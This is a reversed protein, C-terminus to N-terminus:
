RNAGAVTSFQDLLAAVNKELVKEMDGGFAGVAMDSDSVARFKDEGTLSDTVTLVSDVGGKGAGFGVWYRLARSGYTMKIDLNLILAKVNSAPPQSILQYHSENLYDELEGRAFVEWEKMDTQLKENDEAAEEESYVKVESIFAQDYDYLDSSEVDTRVHAAGCGYLTAVLFLITVRFYNNLSYETNM